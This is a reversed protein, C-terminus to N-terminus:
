DASSTQLNRDKHKKGGQEAKKEPPAKKASESKSARPCLTTKM